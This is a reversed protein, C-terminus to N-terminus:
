REKLVTVFSRVSVLCRLRLKPDFNNGVGFKKTKFDVFGTNLSVRIM